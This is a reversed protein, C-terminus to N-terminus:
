QAGAIAPVHLRECGLSILADVLDKRRWGCKVEDM